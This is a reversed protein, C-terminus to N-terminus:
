LNKNLTTQGSHVIRGYRVTFMIFYEFKLYLKYHIINLINTQVEWSVWQMDM